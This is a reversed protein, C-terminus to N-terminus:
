FFLEQIGIVTLVAPETRQIPQASNLFIAQCIVETNNYIETAPIKLQHLTIESDAVTFECHTINPFYNPTRGNVLWFIIDATSHQCSFVVHRSASGPIVISRPIIEFESLEHEGSTGISNM